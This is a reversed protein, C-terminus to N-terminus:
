LREAVAYASAAPREQANADAHLKHGLAAAFVLHRLPQAPDGAVDFWDRGRVRFQFDRMHTPIREVRAPRMRQEVADGDSRLTLVSIEHVREVELRSGAGIEDGFRVVTARNRRDDAAVRHDASLEM